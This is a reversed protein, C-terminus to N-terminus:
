GERHEASHQCIAYERDSRRFLNFVIVSTRKELSGETSVIGDSM